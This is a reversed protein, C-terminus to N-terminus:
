RAGGVPSSLRWGYARADLARGAVAYVGRHVPRLVGKAVRGEIAGRGIGCGLLQARTAVGHQREALDFILRDVGITSRKGEM